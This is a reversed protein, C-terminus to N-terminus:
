RLLMADELPLYCWGQLTWIFCEKEALTLHTVRVETPNRASILVDTYINYEMKNLVGEFAVGQM